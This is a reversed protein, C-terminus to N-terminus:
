DEDDLLWGLLAAGAIGGIGALAGLGPQGPTSTGGAASRSAGPTDTPGGAGGAPSPAPSQSGTATPTSATGEIQAEMAARSVGGGAASRLLSAVLPDDLPGTREGNDGQTPDLFVDAMGLAAVFGDGAPTAALIPLGAAPEDDGSRENQPGSRNVFADTSEHVVALPEAHEGSATVPTAHAGRFSIAYQTLTSPRSRADFEWPPNDEEAVKGFVPELQVIPDGDFGLGFRGALEATAEAVEPNGLILVQGGAAVYAEIAELEDASFENSAGTSMPVVLLDVGSLAAVSWEAVARYGYRDFRARLPQFADWAYDGTAQGHAQDIGVVPRAAAEAEAAARAAAEAALGFSGHNAAVEANELEARARDLGLHDRGDARAASVASSADDIAREAAGRDGRELADDPGLVLLGWLQLEPVTVEFRGGATTGELATSGGPTHWSVAEPREIAVSVAVDRHIPVSDDARDYAYNLLHVITRDSGPQARVTVGIDPADVRVQRGAETLPGALNTAPQEDAAVSQGPTSTVVTAADHAALLSELDDRPQRDDDLAPAGGTAVVHIGADLAARLADVQADSVSEVSPLVVTRYERLRALQDADDWVDPLGFVLADYPIGQERLLTALGEFAAGHSSERADWEPERQWIGTPLSYVLAVDHRPETGTLLPRIAWCFDLFSQLSEPVSGDPAIWNDVALDRDIGWGALSVSRMGGNAFGEALQLNLLTPYTEAPDFGEASETAFRGGALMSGISVVPRDFRGAARGLKYSRDVTARSPVTQESEGYVADFADALVIPTPHVKDVGMNGVVVIGGAQSREPFAAHIRDRYGALYTRHAALQFRKYERAAPADFPTPSEDPTLGRSRLYERLDFGEPDDIGLEDLRAESLGALHERFARRAWASFDLGRWTPMMANDLYVHVYGHEFCTVASRALHDRYPAYFLSPVSEGFANERTRGDFRRSLFETASELPGDIGPWRQDAELHRYWQDFGDIRVNLHQQGAVPLAVDEGFLGGVTAPGSAVASPPHSSGGLNTHLDLKEAHLRRVTRVQQAVPVDDWGSRGLLYPTAASVNLFSGLVDTPHDM